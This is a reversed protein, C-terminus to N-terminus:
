VEQEMRSQGQFFVVANQKGQRSLQVGMIGQLKWVEILIAFPFCVQLDLMYFQSFVPLM